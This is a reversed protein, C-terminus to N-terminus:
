AQHYGPSNNHLANLFPKLTHWMLIYWVLYDNKTIKKEFTPSTKM